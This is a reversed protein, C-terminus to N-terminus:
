PLAPSMSAALGTSPLKFQLKCLFSFPGSLSLLVQPLCQQREREAQQRLKGRGLGVSCHQQAACSVSCFLESHSPRHKLAGACATSAQTTVGTHCGAGPHLDGPLCEWGKTGEKRPCSSPAQCGSNGRTSPRSTLEPNQITHPLLAPQETRSTRSPPNHGVHNNAIITLM